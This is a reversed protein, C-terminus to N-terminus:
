QKPIGSINFCQLNGNRDKCFLRGNAMVIHPWVDSRFVPSRKALETYKKPSRQATEVLFLEGRDAWVILRDDRTAICSATDGFIGGRWLPKGTKFDLCYVGRWAWYIHGKHIVPSCVGSAFPQKWVQRAGGLSVDIRCISYQNYESTIVVSSGQVAPTAISNAFDTEWPFEAVTKGAHEADLRAVLLKHITLVAVCPVGEVTIPVLGGTHGAPDTCVSKWVRKGTRKNFGFLNGEDDGVEAILWDGHVLPSTTYGYDRLKRSGVLPRQKVGYTGYFNVSWVRRGQKASDWCNLDGDASLTYLYGTRADYAPSASPGSYLGQDGYSHRGYQPCKYSQQWETRGTIADICTVTDQHNVWGLTFLKGNAVVPASAGVGVKAVWAAQKPLWSKGDWGSDQSVVGDRNPGRWHPWDTKNDAILFGDSLVSVGVVVAWTLSQIM